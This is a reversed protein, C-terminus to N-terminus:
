LYRYPSRMLPVDSQVDLISDLMVHVYKDEEVKQRKKKSGNSSNKCLCVYLSLERPHLNKLGSDEIFEIPRTTYLANLLRSVNTCRFHEPVLVGFGGFSHSDRLGLHWWTTNADIEIRIGSLVLLSCVIWGSNYRESFGYYFYRNNQHEKQEKLHRTNFNIMKSAITRCLTALESGHIAATEIYTIKSIGIGSRALKSIAEERGLRDDKAIREPGHWFKLNSTVELRRHGLTAHHINASQLAVQVNEASISRLNYIDTLFFIRTPNHKLLAVIVLIPDFISTESFEPFHKNRIAQILYMVERSFFDSPMNIQKMSELIILRYADRLRAM